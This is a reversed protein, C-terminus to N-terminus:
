KIESHGTTPTLEISYTSGASSIVFREIASGDAAGHFIISGPGKTFDFEGNDGFGFTLQRSSTLNKLSYLTSDGTLVYSITLPHDSLSERDYSTTGLFVEGYFTSQSSDYTISVYPDEEGSMTAVRCYSILSYFDNTAEKAGTAIIANITYIGVSALIVIIAITVILEVLTFGKNSKKM